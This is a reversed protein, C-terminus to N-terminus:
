SSVFLDNAADVFAGAQQLIEPAKGGVSRISYSDGTELRLVKPLQIRLRRQVFHLGLDIRYLLRDAEYSPTLASPDDWGFLTKADKRSELVKELFQTYKELDDGFGFRVWAAYAISVDQIVADNTREGLFERTATDAFGYAEKLVELDGKLRKVVRSLFVASRVKKVTM